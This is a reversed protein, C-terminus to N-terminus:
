ISSNWEALFHQNVRNLQGRLQPTQSNSSLTAVQSRLQNMMDNNSVRFNSGNIINLFAKTFFGHQISAHEGATEYYKCAAFLMARASGVLTKDPDEDLDVLRGNEIIPNSVNLLIQDSGEPLCIGIPWWTQVDQIGAM